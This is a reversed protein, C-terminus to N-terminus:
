NSFTVTAGLEQALNDIQKKFDIAHVLTDFEMHGTKAETDLVTNPSVEGRYAHGNFLETGAAVLQQEIASTPASYSFDVPYNYTTTMPLDKNIDTNIQLDKLYKAFLLM